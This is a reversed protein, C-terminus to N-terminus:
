EEPIFYHIISLFEQDDVLKPNRAFMFYHGEFDESLAEKLVEFAEENEDVAMLALVKYYLLETSYTYMDAEDLVDLARDYEQIEYLFRVHAIWTEPIDGGLDTAKTFYYNAKDMDGSLYFADAIAAFYEERSDELKIAKFYHQLAIDYKGEASFCMGLHYQVEDNYPDLRNAKRFNLRAQRYDKLKLYCEGISAFLESDPGINELADLYIRLALKYKCMQFALEGCDKYGLEFKPQILFSYEYASLADDYEGICSLAQGLNYWALYAYPDKDLLVKLYEIGQHYSRQSEMYCWLKEMAAENSPEEDLVLKIHHFMQQYDKLKEHITAKSITANLKDRYSGSLSVDCLLSFARNYEKESILCNAKLLKVENESPSLLLAQDLADFADSTNNLALLIQAKKLFLDPIDNYREIALDTIELAKDFIGEKEFYLILEFFDKVVLLGLDGNQSLEEYESVFSPISNNHSNNNENM